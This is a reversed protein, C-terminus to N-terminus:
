VARPADKKDSEINILLWIRVRSPWKHAMTGGSPNFLLDFNFGQEKLDEFGFCNWLQARSVATVDCVEAWNFSKKSFFFNDFGFMKIIQQM